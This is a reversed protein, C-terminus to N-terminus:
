CSAQALVHEIWGGTSAYVGHEHAIALLERVAPRSM